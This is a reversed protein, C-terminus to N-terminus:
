DSGGYGLISSLVFRWMALVSLSGFLFDADAKTLGGLMPNTPCDCWADSALAVGIALIIASFWTRGANAIAKHTSCEVTNKYLFAGSFYGALLWAATIVVASSGGTSIAPSYPVYGLAPLVPMGPLFSGSHAVADYWVPLSLNIKMEAATAPDLAAARASDGNVLAEAMMANFTHDLFSYVFLSAIDGGMVLWDEPEPPLVDKFDKFTKRLKRGPENLGGDSRKQSGSGSGSLIKSVHDDPDSMDSMRLSPSPATSGSGSGSASARGLNTGLNIGLNTGLRGRNPSLARPRAPLATFASAQASVASLAVAAAAAAVGTARRSASRPRLRRQSNQSNM